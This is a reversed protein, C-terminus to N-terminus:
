FWVHICFLIFLAFAIIFVLGIALGALTANLAAQRLERKSWEVPAPPPSTGGPPQRYPQKGDLASMDAVTRGDDDEYGQKKVRRM